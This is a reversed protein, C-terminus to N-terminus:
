DTTSYRGLDLGIEVEWTAATVANDPHWIHVNLDEGNGIEAEGVNAVMRQGVAATLVNFEHIDADGFVILYEDGTVPIQTRLKARAVLRQATAANLVLAGFKAVVGTAVDDLSEALRPRVLTLTSGGSAHRAAGTDLTVALESKTASAPAVVNILRIYRMRAVDKSDNRLNVVADTAAFATVITQAIATGPTPNVAKWRRTKM